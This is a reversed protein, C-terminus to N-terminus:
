IYLSLSLYTISHLIGVCVCVHIYMYKYIYVCIFYMYNKLKDSYRIIKDANNRHFFTIRMGFLRILLNESCFKHEPSKRQRNTSVNFVTKHFSFIFM